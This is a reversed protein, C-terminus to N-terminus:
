GSHQKGTISFGLIQFDWFHSMAPSARLEGGQM